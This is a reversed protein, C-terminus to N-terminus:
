PELRWSEVPSYQPATAGGGAPASLSDPMDPAPESRNRRGQFAKKVRESLSSITEKLTRGGPNLVDESRDLKMNVIVEEVLPASQLMYMKTTLPEDHQVILDGERAKIVSTDEKGVSIVAFAQYADRTRFAAFLSFATGVAVVAAILWKRKFLARAWREWDVPQVGEEEAGNYHGEAYDTRYYGARQPQADSLEQRHELATKEDTM